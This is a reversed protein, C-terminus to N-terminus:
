TKTCNPIPTKHLIAAFRRDGSPLFQHVRWGSGSLLAKMGAPSATLYDFWPTKYQKYRVRLRLLGPPRGRELNRRIYALDSHDAQLHPNYSSTLIQGSCSTIHWLRRLLWHARAYGGLLGFNGDLLLITDFTGLAPGARTVPLVFANRVGRRRCVSIALPSIDIATVHLGLNQLHLAHRGAGCGADLVRGAAHQIALQEHRPWQDFATFYSASSHASLLKGDDRELVEFAPRGRFSDLLHRGVADHSDEIASDPAKM